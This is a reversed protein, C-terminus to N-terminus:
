APEGTLMGLVRDTDASTRLVALATEDVLVRALRQLLALHEVADVAAFTFFVSLPIAADGALPVPEVATVLSLGTRVAGHEPRAHALVVHPAVVMASGNAAFGAFIEAVYAPTVFGDRVLLASSARVGADWSPVAAQLAMRDATM